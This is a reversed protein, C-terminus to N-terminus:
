KALSVQEVNTSIIHSEHAAAHAAKHQLQPLARLGGEQNSSSDYFFMLRSPAELSGAFPALFGDASGFNQRPPTFM